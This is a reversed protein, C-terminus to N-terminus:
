LCSGFNYRGVIAPITSRGALCSAGTRHCGEWLYGIGNSSEVIIVPEFIEDVMSSYRGSKNEVQFWLAWDEPSNPEDGGGFKIQDIPYNEEFVWVLDRAPTSEVSSGDTDYLAGEHVEAEVVLQEQSAKEYYSYDSM